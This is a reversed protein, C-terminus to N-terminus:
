VVMGAPRHADQAQRHASAQIAAETRLVTFVVKAIRHATFVIKALERRAGTLNKALQLHAQGALEARLEVQEDIVAAHAFNDEVHAAPDM